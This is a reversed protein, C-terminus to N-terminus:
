SAQGFWVIRLHADNNCRATNLAALRYKAAYFLYQRLNVLGVDTLGLIPGNLAGQRTRPPPRDVIEISLYIPDGTSRRPVTACRNGV